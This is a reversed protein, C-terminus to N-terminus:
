EIYARGAPARQPPEILPTDLQPGFGNARTLRIQTKLRMATSALEAKIKDLAIGRTNAYQLLALERKIALEERRSSANIQEREVVAERYSRNETIDNQNKQIEATTALKEKWRDTEIKHMDVDARIKAVEIMPNVQPQLTQKKEESMKFKDPIFRNAKLVEEIAKEPDLGFAPNQSLNLIQMAMMGQIDRDVLATSGIAEIKMDGKESEEGYMMLWEYYRRIHPETVMIDFIRALRRLFASANQHLLIMGGVTDPASGQQGQLIFMIGTSDEMMKYALQIIGDLEKQQTPINIAMIADSVSKVDSEESALWIKRPTLSWQGDVPSIAKRRIIIQPGSALGANDMLARCSANLMEQATRGQRAVGIGWPLGSMSQWVMVDYPFEGSDLPNLFAKIPSDNVMTVVAPILDRKIIRNGEADKIGPAGMADLKEFDVLGNYYWVEFREDDMTSQGSTRMGEDYHRKGPGEDIVKDIRDAIYGPLERLDRLQRASMRDREFCYSGNHIDDGCSPDPFFDWIDVNYSVPVTEKTMDLALTGNKGKVMKKTIKRKPVPGKLIGIGSKSASEIVKRVEAHYQCETLWDKIREEGKETREQLAAESAAQVQQGQPTDQFEPPVPNDGSEPVPTPKITFNWDGAPLLIDGLRSSAADCFQRTINFFATCRVTDSNKSRTLGGETSAAKVFVHNERNMEDVGHYYEDDEQWIREIGTQKRWALAADLKKKVEAGVADILEERKARMVEITQRIEEPLGETYDNETPMTSNM